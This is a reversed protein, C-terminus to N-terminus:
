VGIAVSVSTAVGLELIKGLGVLSQVYRRNASSSYVKAHFPKTGQINHEIFTLFSFFVRETYM